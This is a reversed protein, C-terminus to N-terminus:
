IKHFCRVVLSLSDVRGDLLGRERGKYAVCCDLLRYIFGSGHSARVSVSCRLGENIRSMVTSGHEGVRSWRLRREHTGSYSHGHALWSDAADGLGYGHCLWINIQRLIAHGWLHGHRWANCIVLSDGLTLGSLFYSGVKVPHCLKFIHFKHVVHSDSISNWLLFSSLPFGLSNSSTFIRVLAVPESFQEVSCWHKGNSRFNIFRDIM